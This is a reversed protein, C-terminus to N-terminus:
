ICSTMMINGAGDQTQCRRDADMSQSNIRIYVNNYGQQTASPSGWKDDVCMVHYIHIYVFLPIVKVEEDMKMIKKIRALPMEPSKWHEQFLMYSLVSCRSSSHNALIMATNYQSVLLICILMM